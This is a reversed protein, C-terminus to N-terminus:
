LLVGQEVARLAERGSKVQAEAQRVTSSTKFGNFLTQNVTIGATWPKPLTRRLSSYPLRNRVGTVGPSRGVTGEPRLGALARSVNEDTGRLKAREANLQPNDQYARVLAEPLSEARAAGSLVAVAALALTTRHFVVPIVRGFGPRARGSRREIWARGVVYM